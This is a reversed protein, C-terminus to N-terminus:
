PRYSPLEMTFRTGLGEVSEAVLRGGHGEVIERAIALGLGAGGGRRVRSKEVQYFREFVRSLEEAPIGPGNDTVACLVWEERCEGRILVRGGGRADRSHKLANDVLNGLVQSLRDSDGAVMLTSPAHAELISGAKSAVASFRTACDRVLDAMDLPERALGVEGSELRALELLEDVLRRMRGAEEHIIVAAREQAAADSATGDLLAQSYGQISTLPTKLEHSVNAVLDQQSQLTAQVQRAMENFSIVLREIETPASIQLRQEYSGGAVEEAAQAIRNLPRSISYALLAALVLSVVFAIAGSWLLRPLLDGLALRMPRYSEAIILVHTASFQGNGSARVSEAVYLLRQGADLQLEGRLPLARPGLAQDALRKLARSDVPEGGRAVVRGDLDVLYVSTTAVDDGRNLQQALRDVVEQPSGGRLLAQSTAVASMVARDSLRGYILGRQYGRLLVLAALGVLALCVVIIVLYSLVLRARLGRFMVTSGM